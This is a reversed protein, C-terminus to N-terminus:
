TAKIYLYLKGNTYLQLADREVAVIVAKSGLQIAYWLIGIILGVTYLGQPM